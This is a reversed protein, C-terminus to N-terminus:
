MMPLYIIKKTEFFPETFKESLNYVCARSFKVLEQDFDGGKIYIIGNAFNNKNQKSFSNRVWAVFKPFETVARSVVFDFKEPLGEARAHVAIVNKLGLADAVERVVTIKKGISDSLVFEVEPFLIALPIGPFGGGTGIDLIRTGNSFQFYYAITLSHLVHREYLQEIDKRSIVNIRDNWFEYLAQLQQFQNIQDSSLNPFYKQIIQM